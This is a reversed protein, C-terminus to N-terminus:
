QTGPPAAARLRDIAAASSALEAELQALREAQGKDGDGTMLLLERKDVLTERQDLLDNLAMRHRVVPSLTAPDVAAPKRNREAERAVTLRIADGITVPLQGRADVLADGCFAKSTALHHITYTAFPGRQHAPLEELLAAIVARDALDYAALPTQRVDGACGGTALSVALLSLITRQM